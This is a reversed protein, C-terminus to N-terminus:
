VLYLQKSAVSNGLVPVTSPGPSLAPSLSHYDRAKRLRLQTPSTSPVRPVLCVPLTHDMALIGWLFHFRALILAPGNQIQLCHLTKRPLACKFWILFSSVPWCTFFPLGLLSSADWGNWLTVASCHAPWSSTQSALLCWIVGPKM